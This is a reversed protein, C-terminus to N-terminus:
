LETGDQVGGNSEKKISYYQLIKIVKDNQPQRLECLVDILESLENHSLAKFEQQWQQTLGEDEYYSRYMVFERPMSLIEFYEDLNKGFAKLFFSEGDAVIGKTVNLIAYINSLYQKNWYLGVCSRDTRDIPAYKMPFSFIKVGLEKALDINIKLRQWLEEPRDEFNYLIYNSFNRVGHEQAIRMAKTYIDTYKINDFALRFPEIPIRSLIAMKESTLQRADIGQNFDVYRKRGTPKYYHELIEILIEQYEKITFYKDESKELETIFQLYKEEYTKSKRISKKEILYEILETLINHFAPASPPLIDLKKLYKKLPLEAFYKTDKDFGLRYIDDVIKTLVTTDFSLINNDLLLLNQKEGYRECAINIQSTINNTLCFEPELIPVACFKCKNTCGRSIYAFYNDGAPYKYTIDDLISYDLPLTDINVHDNFGLAKSDTLLGTLVVSENGIDKQLKDKMLSAMIGGIYIQEPSILKQYHKITNVTQSFYFTFLSTIYVKGFEFKEFEAKPMLGKFFIVKDGRQKHYTSIKMLGMPPYKNKYGPEVLLVNM